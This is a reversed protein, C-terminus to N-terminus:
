ILVKEFGPLTPIRSCACLTHVSSFILAGNEDIYFIYMFGWTRFPCKIYKNEKQPQKTNMNIINKDPLMVMLCSTWFLINDQRVCGRAIMMLLSTLPQITQFRFFFDIKKVFSKRDFTKFFHHLQKSVVILWILQRDIESLNAKNGFIYFLSENNSNPFKNEMETTLSM